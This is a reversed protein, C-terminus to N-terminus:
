MNIFQRVHGGEKLFYIGRAIRSIGIRNIKGEFVTQQKVPRGQLDYIVAEAKAAIDEVIIENYFPGGTIKIVDNIDSKIIKIESFQINGNDSLIKLRYYSTKFAMAPLEAFYNNVSTTNYGDKEHVANWSIADSSHEVVFKTGNDEESTQWGIYIKYDAKKFVNFSSLQVQLVPVSYYVSRRIYNVGAAPQLTFAGTIDTSVTVGFNAINSRTASKKMDVEVGSTKANLAVSASLGTAMLHNTSSSLLTVVYVAFRLIISKTIGANLKLTFNTYFSKM